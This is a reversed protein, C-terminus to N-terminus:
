ARARSSARARTSTPPRPRACPQPGPAPVPPPSPTHTLPAPPLCPRVRHGIISRDTPRKYNTSPADLRPTPGGKQQRLSCTFPPPMTPSPHRLPLGPWAEEEKHHDMHHHLSAPPRPPDPRQPHPHAWVTCAVQAAGRGGPAVRRCLGQRGAALLEARQMVAVVGAQDLRGQHQLAMAQLENWGEASALSRALQSADVYLQVGAVATARQAVPASRHRHLQQYLSAAPSSSPRGSTSPAAAGAAAYHPLGPAAM